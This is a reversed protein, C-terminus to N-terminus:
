QMQLELTAHMVIRLRRRTHAAGEPFISAPSSKYRYQGWEKDSLNKSSIQELATLLVGIESERFFSLLFSTLQDESTTMRFIGQFLGSAMRTFLPYKNPDIAAM